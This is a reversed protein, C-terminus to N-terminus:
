TCSLKDKRYAGHTVVAELLKSAKKGSRASTDKQVPIKDYQILPRVQELMIEDSSGLLCVPCVYIVCM